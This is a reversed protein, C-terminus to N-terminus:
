RHGLAALELRASLLRWVCQKPVADVAGAAGMAGAVGNGPKLCRKLVARRAIQM